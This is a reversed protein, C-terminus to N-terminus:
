LGMIISKAHVERIYNKLHEALKFNIGYFLDDTDLRWAMEKIDLEAIKMWDEINNQISEKLNFNINGVHIVSASRDNNYYEFKSGTKLNILIPMKDNKIEIEIFSYTRPVNTFPISDNM